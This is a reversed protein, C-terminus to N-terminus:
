ALIQCEPHGRVGPHWTLSGKAGRNQLSLKEVKEDVDGLGQTVVRFDDDNLRVHSLVFYTLHMKMKENLTLAAM